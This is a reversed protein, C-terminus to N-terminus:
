KLSSLLFVQCIFFPNMLVVSFFQIRCAKALSFLQWFSIIRDWSVPFFDNYLSSPCSIITIYFLHMGNCLKLHICILNWMKRKFDGVVDFILQFFFFNSWRTLILYMRALSSYLGGLCMTFLLFWKGFSFPIMKMSVWYCSQFINILGDIATNFRM